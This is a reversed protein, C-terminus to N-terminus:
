YIRAVSGMTNVSTTQVRTAWMIWNSTTTDSIVHDMCSMVHDLYILHDMCYLSMVHDMCSMMHDICLIVVETEVVHCMASRVNAMNSLDHSGM